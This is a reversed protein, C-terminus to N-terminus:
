GCWFSGNHVVFVFLAISIVLFDYRFELVFLYAEELMVGCQVYVPM